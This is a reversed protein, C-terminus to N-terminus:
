DDGAEPRQSAAVIGDRHQRLLRALLRVTQERIERSFTAWPPSLSPPHGLSLQSVCPSSPSPRMLVEEATNPGTSLTACIM